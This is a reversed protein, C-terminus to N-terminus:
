LPTALISVRWAGPRYKNLSFSPVGFYDYSEIKVIPDVSWQRQEKILIRLTNQDAKKDLRGDFDAIVSLRSLREMSKEVEWSNYYNGVGTQLERWIQELTTQRSGETVLHHIKDVEIELSLLGDKSLQVDSVHSLSYGKSKHLVEIEEKIRDMQEDLGKSEKDTDEVAEKITKEPLVVDGRLELDKIPIPMRSTATEQPYEDPLREM